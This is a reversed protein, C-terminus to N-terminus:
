EKNLHIEINHTFNITSQDLIELEQLIKLRSFFIMLTKFSM